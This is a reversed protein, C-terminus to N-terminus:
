RKSPKKTIMGYTVLGIVFGTLLALPILVILSMGVRWFFFVFTVMHRNQIVLILLLVVVILIILFKGGLGQSKPKGNSM